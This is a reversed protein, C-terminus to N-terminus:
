QMNTEHSLMATYIKTGFPLVSVNQNYRSFSISHLIDSNPLLDAVIGFGIVSIKTPIVSVQETEWIKETHSSASNCNGVSSLCFPSLM